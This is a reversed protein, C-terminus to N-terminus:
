SGSIKKYSPPPLANSGNEDAGIDYINETPRLTGDMDTGISAGFRQQYTL